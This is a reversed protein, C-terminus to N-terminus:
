FLNRASELLRGLGRRAVPGGGALGDLLGALGDGRAGAGAERQKSLAGMVLGAVLPLAKKITEQEIGTDSAAYRAVSRSNTKSGFLHGLIKNGEDRAAASNM